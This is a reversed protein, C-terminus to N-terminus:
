QWARRESQKGELNTASVAVERPAVRLNFSDRGPEYIATSSDFRKENAELRSVRDTFPLQREQTSLHRGSRSATPKSPSSRRRRRGDVVSADTSGLHRGCRQAAAPVRQSPGLRSRRRRSPFSPFPPRSRAPIRLDPEEKSCIVLPRVRSSALKMVECVSIFWNERLTHQIFPM